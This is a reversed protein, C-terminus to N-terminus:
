SLGMLILKQASIKFKYAIMRRQQVIALRPNASDSLQYSSLAQCNKIKEKKEKKMKM